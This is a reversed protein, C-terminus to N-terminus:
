ITTIQLLLAIVLAERALRHVVSGVIGCLLLVAGIGRRHKLSLNNLNMLDKLSRLDRLVRNIANHGIAVTRTDIVSANSYGSIGWGQRRMCVVQSICGGVFFFMSLASLSLPLYMLSLLSFLMSPLLSLLRAVINLGLFALLGSNMIPMWVTNLGLYALLSIM